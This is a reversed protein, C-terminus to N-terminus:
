ASSPMRSKQIHSSNLRTSKRDPYMINNLDDSHGLGLFHGLEHQAINTAFSSAYPQWKGLCNSDGLAVLIVHDGPRYEGAIQGYEKVWQIEVDAQQLSAAENFKIDPNANEWRAAADFIVDSTITVYDPPPDVYLYYNKQPEAGSYSVTNVLIALLLTSILIHARLKM